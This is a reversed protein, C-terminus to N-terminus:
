EARNGLFQRHGAARFTGSAETTQLYPWTGIHESYHKGEDQLQDREVNLRESDQKREITGDAHRLDQRLSQKWIGLARICQCLGHERSGGIDSDDVYVFKTVAVTAFFHTAKKTMWIINRAEERSLRVAGFRSLTRRQMPRAALFFVIVAHEIKLLTSAQRWIHSRRWQGIAVVTEGKIDNTTLDVVALTKFYCVYCNAHCCISWYIQGCHSRVYRHARCDRREETIM